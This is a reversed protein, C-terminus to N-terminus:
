CWYVLEAYGGRQFVFSTNMPVPPFAGLSVFGPNFYLRLQALVAVFIRSKVGKQQQGPVVHAPGGPALKQHTGRSTGGTAKQLDGLPLHIPSLSILHLDLTSCFKNYLRFVILNVWLTCGFLTALNRTFLEPSDGRYEELNLTSTGNHNVQNFLLTLMCDWAFIYIFCLPIDLM